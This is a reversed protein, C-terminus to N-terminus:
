THLLDKCIALTARDQYDTPQEIVCNRHCLCHYQQHCTKGSVSLPLMRSFSFLKSSESGRVVVLTAPDDKKNESIPLGKSALGTRPEAQACAETTDSLVRM